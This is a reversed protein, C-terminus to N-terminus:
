EDELPEQRRFWYLASLTEVLEPDDTDEIPKDEPVLRDVRDSDDFHCYGGGCIDIGEGPHAFDDASTKTPSVFQVLRFM